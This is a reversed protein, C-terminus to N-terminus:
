CRPRCRRAGSLASPFRGTVANVEAKRTLDIGSGRACRVKASATFSWGGLPRDMLTPPTATERGPPSRAVENRGGVHPRDRFTRCEAGGAVDPPRRPGRLEAAPGQRLVPG